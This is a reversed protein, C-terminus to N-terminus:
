RCPASARRRSQLTEIRRGEGEQAAGDEDAVEEQPVRDLGQLGGEQEGLAYRARLDTSLPKNVHSLTATAEGDVHRMM